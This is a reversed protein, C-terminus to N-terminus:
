PARVKKLPYIEKKFGASILLEKAREFDSEFIMIRVSSVGVAGVAVNHDAILYKIKEAALVSEILSISGADETRMVEKLTM